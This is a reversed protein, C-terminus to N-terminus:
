APSGTSPKTFALLLNDSPDHRQALRRGGDILGAAAVRRSWEAIPAFHRREKRNEAWPLGLGANFVTHALSVFADMEPTTVDHDRLVFVGGPRLVRAISGVFAALRDPPAHHLGIYCTVLDASADPLALPTYDDLPVFRGVRGLQGREVLDVPGFGPAVDNVLVVEGELRLRARLANVYRGPTGIEVYGRFDRREGLLEQTQRAMEDKQKRLSPLAYTLESLFPKLRPLREQVDRYIAEDDAHRACADKILTHFRDEPYLRYVTQLFRYFGDHLRVDSFVRRFESAPAPAPPRPELTPAYYADWLANRLRYQPDYRRKLAFFEECRPYAHRFQEPTAHIQYPLYYTGGTELAAEILERTWVAVRNRANPRTRQKYYLVFAFCEERAWALVTGPDPRAHRISVNVLNVRHRRLVEALRPVFEDFRGVPVFYEQLVYTTFRRSAPELEAVDYGAEYNRWHVKPRMYLLRDVIHQRRWKGLPTETAAWIFYRHMPYGRRAPQVRPVSAPEDTVSWTVSRVSAYHPPYLDANHLLAEPSHRVESRFHELYEGVPMTRARRALRVNEALDLEAEVIVGLGGYGGIAGWFLEANQSPSAEVQEGDALVLSLARVSLVLPGLGMYRGHVNVSLSGGVTFNAYSQMIKVALGHPDVFRQVDCWRAGAQVRLIREVPQFRVIQNLGRLDLHLSGPSAIQGGMSFRGGGISLPGNTRRVAEQVEAVSTPTAVAFVPIPNLGTVDNVIQRPEPM